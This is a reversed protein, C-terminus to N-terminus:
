TSAVFLMQRKCELLPANDKSVVVNNQFKGSRFHFM